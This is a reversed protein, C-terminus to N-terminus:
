GTGPRDSTKKNYVYNTSVNSNGTLPRTLNLTNRTDNSNDTIMTQNFSFNRGNVSINRQFPSILNSM